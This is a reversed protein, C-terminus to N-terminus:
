QRWYGTRKVRHVQFSLTATSVRDFTSCREIAIRVLLLRDVAHGTSRTLAAKRIVSRHGCVPRLRGQRDATLEPREPGVTAPDLPQAICGTCQQDRATHDM